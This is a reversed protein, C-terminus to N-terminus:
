RGGVMLGSWDPWTGFARTGCGGEERARERERERGKEKEELREREREQGKL